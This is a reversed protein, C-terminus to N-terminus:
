GRDARSPDNTLRRFAAALYTFAVHEITDATTTRAVLKNAASTLSSPDSAAADVLRQVAEEFGRQAEALAVSILEDVNV